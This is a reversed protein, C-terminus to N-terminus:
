TARGCWRGEFMRELGRSPPMISTSMTMIAVKAPLQSANPSTEPHIAFRHDTSKQAVSPQNVRMRAHSCSPRAYSRTPTRRHFRCRGSAPSKKSPPMEFRWRASVRGSASVRNAASVRRASRTCQAFTANPQVKAMHVLVATDIAIIMKPATTCMGNMTIWRYM